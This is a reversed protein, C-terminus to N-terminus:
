KTLKASFSMITLETYNWVQGQDEWNSWPPFLFAYAYRYGTFVVNIYLLIYIYIYIYLVLYIYYSACIFVYNTEHLRWESSGRWEVNCKMYQLIYWFHQHSMRCESQQWILCKFHGAGNCCRCCILLYRIITWPQWSFRFRLLTRTRGYIRCM